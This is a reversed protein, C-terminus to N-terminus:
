RHKPTPRGGGFKDVLEWFTAQSFERCNEGGLADWPRTQDRLRKRLYEEVKRDTAADTFRFMPYVINGPASKDQYVHGGCDFWCTPQPPKRRFSICFRKGSGRSQRPDSNGEFTGVCISQHMGLGAESGVADEVWYDLEEPDSHILPSGGSYAYTNIGADLGLPDSEAYRGVAPDYDRFYNYHARGWARRRLSVRNRWRTRRTLTTRTSPVLALL